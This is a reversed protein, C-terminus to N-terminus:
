VIGTGQAVQSLGVVTFIAILVQQRHAEAWDHLRRLVAETKAPAALYAVLIVEVAAYMGVLFVIAASVQTGIAAGSAVIIAAVFLVGDISVSVLGIVWAVWLSGSEWADQARDLLRQIAIPTNSDSTGTSTNGDPAAQRARQRAFFRVTMLAAISLAVVGIGIQIHRGTSNTAPGAPDQGLSRSLTAHLLLLPLLLLPVTVMLGGAWYALLNQVPRPRSIMLLTLGLRVPNLTALLALGLVSGWM